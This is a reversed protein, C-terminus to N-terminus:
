RSTQLFEMLLWYERWLRQNMSSLVGLEGRSRLRKCFTEFLDKIPAKKLIELASKKQQESVIVQSMGTLVEERL